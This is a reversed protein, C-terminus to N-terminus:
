LRPASGNELGSIVAAPLPGLAAGISFTEQTASDEAPRPQLRYSRWSLATIIRQITTHDRSGTTPRRFADKAWKM